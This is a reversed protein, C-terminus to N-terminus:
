GPNARGRWDRRREAAAKEREEKLLREHLSDFAGTAGIMRADAIRAEREEQIRREELDKLVESRTRRGETNGSGGRGGRGGRGGGRGGGGRGGGGGGRGGGGRGGRAFSDGALFAFSLVLCGFLLCLNLLRKM